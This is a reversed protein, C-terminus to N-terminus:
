KGVWCYFDSNSNCCIGGGMINKAKFNKVLIPFLLYYFLLNSLCWTVGNFKFAFVNDPFFSQLLLLFPAINTVIDAWSLRYAIIAIVLSVIYLPYIKIFRKKYFEFDSLGNLIKEKYGYSCVFGSLIFFFTVGIFGEFLLKEVLVSPKETYYQAFTDFHHFFVALIFVFRLATLSNIKRKM